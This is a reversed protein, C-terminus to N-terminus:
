NICAGSQCGHPCEYVSIKIFGDLCYAEMLINKNASQEKTIIGAKIYDNIDQLTFSIDGTCVDKVKEKRTENNLPNYYNGEVYGLTNYNKGDSDTCMANLEEASLEAPPYKSIFYQTVSNNGIPETPSIRSEGGNSNKQVITEQLDVWDVGSKDDLFWGIEHNEIRMINYGFLKDTQSMKWWIQALLEKGSSLKFINVFISIGQNRYEARIGTRCLIGQFNEGAITENIDSCEERIKELKESGRSYLTFEGITEPYLKALRDLKRGEKIEESFFIDFIPAEKAYIIIAGAGILVILIIPIIIKLKKM